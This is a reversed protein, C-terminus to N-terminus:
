SETIHYNGLSFSTPLIGKAVSYIKDNHGRQYWNEYHEHNSNISEIIEIFEDATFDNLFPEICSYFRDESEYYSTVRKYLMICMRRLIQDSIRNLTQSRLYKMVDKNLYIDRVWTQSPLDINALYNDPTTSPFWAILKYSFNKVEELFTNIHEINEENLCSYIEPHRSIIFILKILTDSDSDIQNLYAYNSTDTFFSNTYSSNYEYIIGLVQRNLEWFTNCETNISSRFVFKWYAKLAKTLMHENMYSLYTREVYKKLRDFDGLFFDARTTIDNDMKMIIDDCFFPPKIFIKYMSKIFFLTEEQTPRYLEYDLNLTPHAALNRKEKLHNLNMIDDFDYIKQIKLKEILKDEWDTYNKGHLRLEEVNSLLNTAKEDNFVDKMEKLKKMADCIATSYLLVISSRYFGSTYSTVVEEFYDRVEKFFIKSSDLDFLIM